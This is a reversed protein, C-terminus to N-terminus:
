LHRSKQRLEELQEMIARREEETTERVVRGPVGLVLSNPPVHVGATLLSGAGVISGGSVVVGDLVIAGIGVLARSQIRAGHIMAGHSVLAEEEVYVPYGEPAEILALDLIGAYCGIRIEASDARLVAMPWVSAGKEIRVDGIIRASVDVVAGPDIQPVRRGFPTIWSTKRM